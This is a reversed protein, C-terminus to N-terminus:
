AGPQRTRELLADLEPNPSIWPLHLHTSHGPVSSVLTRGKKFIGRKCLARWMAFDKSRGDGCFKTYTAYDARLCAIRTAFTLTTSNTIKWHISRSRYLRTVESRGSILRNAGPGDMYKDPHDYLTAYDGFELGEELLERSRPLHLYDDEVLYVAEGDNAATRLALDIAHIFTDGGNGFKTTHVTVGQSGLWEETDPKVCDAVVYVEHRGFVELFNEFCKRKSFGEPRPKPRGRNTEDSFRLYCRMM